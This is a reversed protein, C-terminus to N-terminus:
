PTSTAASTTASSELRWNFTYSASGSPFRGPDLGEALQASAAPGDTSALEIYSPTTRALWVPQQQQGSSGFAVSIQQCNSMYDGALWVVRQLRRWLATRWEWSRQWMKERSARAPAPFVDLVPALKDCRTEDATFYLWRLTNDPVSRGASTCTALIRVVPLGAAAPAVVAARNVDPRERNSPTM